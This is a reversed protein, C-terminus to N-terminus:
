QGGMGPINVTNEFSAPVNWPMSGTSDGREAEYFAKVEQANNIQYFIDGRFTSALNEAPQIHREVRSGDARTFRVTSHSPVKSGGPRNKIESNPPMAKVRYKVKGEQVLEVDTLTEDSYNFVNVSIRPATASCGVLCLLGLALIWKM